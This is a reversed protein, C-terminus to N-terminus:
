HEILQPTATPHRRDPSSRASPDFGPVVGDKRALHLWKYVNNVPIGNYHQAIRAPSADFRAVVEAFDSPWRTYTSGEPLAPGAAPPAAKGAKRTAKKAAKRAPKAQPPKKDAAPPAPAAAGGARQRPAIRPRSGNGARPLPMGFEEELLLLHGAIVGEDSSIVIKTIRTPQDGNAPEFTVSIRVPDDGDDEITRTRAM